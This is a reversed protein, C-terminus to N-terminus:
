PEKHEFEKKVQDNVVRAMYAVIEKETEHDQTIFDYVM